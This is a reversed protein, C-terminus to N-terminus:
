RAHSYGEGLLILADARTKQFISHEARKMCRINGPNTRKGHVRFVLPRAIKVPTEIKNLRRSVRHM